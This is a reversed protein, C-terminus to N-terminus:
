PRYLSFFTEHLSYLPQKSKKATKAHIMRQPRQSFSKFITKVGLDRLDNRNKQTKVLFM